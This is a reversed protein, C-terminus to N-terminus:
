ETLRYRSRHFKLQSRTMVCVGSPRAVHYIMGGIELAVHHETRGVVPFVIDGDLRPEDEDLPRVRARVEPQAFWARFMSEESHEAHNVPYPPVSIAQDIAGCELFCAGLYSACCVGGGPGKVASRERFPTGIWSECVGRLRDVRARKLFYDLRPATNAPSSM